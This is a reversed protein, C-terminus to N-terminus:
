QGFLGSLYEIVDQWLRGCQSLSPYFEVVRIESPLLWFTVM